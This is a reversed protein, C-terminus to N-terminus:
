QKERFMDLKQRQTCIKIQNITAPTLGDCERLKFFILNSTCPVKVCIVLIM